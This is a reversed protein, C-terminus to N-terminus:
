PSLLPFSHSVSTTVAVHLYSPRRLHQPGVESHLDVATVRCTLETDALRHKIRLTQNQTKFDLTLIHQSCLSNKIDESMLSAQLLLWVAWHTLVGILKRQPEPNLELIEPTIFYVVRPTLPLLTRKLIRRVRERGITASTCLTAGGGSCAVGWRDDSAPITESLSCLSHLVCADM